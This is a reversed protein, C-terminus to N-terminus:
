GESVTITTAARAQLRRAEILQARQNAQARALHEDANKTGVTEMMSHLKETARDTRAQHWAALLDAESPASERPPTVWTAPDMSPRETNASVWNDILVEGSPEVGADHHVGNVYDLWYTEETVLTITRSEM